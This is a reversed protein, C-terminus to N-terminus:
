GDREVEKEMQEYINEINAAARHADKNSDFMCIENFPCYKCPLTGGSCYPKIEINGAKIARDADVAAKKVYKKMIDFQELSAISRSQQFTGDSEPAVNLFESKGGASIAADMLYLADPSLGDELEDLIFLGDLKHTKKPAKTLDDSQEFKVESNESETLRSYLIARIQPDLTDIGTLIGSKAMDEAAAAYMVLQMDVKDYIAEPSFKKSGTKYDVIRINLRNKELEEMVDIRDIKGTLTIRDGNDEIETEFSKEYCLSAYEGDSLSKRVASVSNKLTVECRSLLYEAKGTDPKASAAIQESMESIVRHILLECEEDTLATWKSHIEAISQAGDEVAKCFEHIAAHMISGIHSANIEPESQGVLRLGRELYYSFPCKEYKELATISYKKNKGYLAEARARSLMPQILKYEAATRLIDLRQRYEPNKSYWDRVDNWLQEPKEKYYESLKLLMYYFGRRPSALLESVSPPSIINEGVTIDFMGTIESVFHAPNVPEGKRDASPFSIFLKETGTSLMRYFKFNELMIRGRNDPALEKKRTKLASSIMIRDLDSLITGGESVKPFQGDQAGIIFLAKVRSPSNRTVTGLSVRDLGSPIIAISCVGLGCLFRDAFDERSITGGQSVTVLQDLTEIIYNWVQRFQESENRNGCEDFAACESVLGDYLNIDCMFKFVAEAIAPATRGKNELFHEFPAIIFARLENLKDLDIDDYPKSGTVEDFVTGCKETWESFWTKKGKIGVALVYNELLDVDEQSIATVEDDTKAYIYGTRLYEFVSTYSWNDKIIDFLSLVTKAVPHMSVPMKEDTFFPIGFDSFVSTLIHLYQDMDGCIIGIDRFRLGNDRVLSIIVAAAHEVESYIDLANFVSINECKKEYHPKQDWNQLLFRIDASKIHECNGCLKVTECPINLRGCLSTLKNKTKIVPEFLDEDMTEDICLSVSVGRSAKLFASIVRYHSPMFDSYDDIYFFTNGFINSNEAIDAFLAMEDDSDSLDESFSEVYYKYIENVSALKKDTHPNETELGEFDDPSIGYRKLESFLDSLADTFGSRGSSLYFANDKSVAKAAKQILMAKGCPSIRTARPLFRNLLRSFTVAEIRNIGLGGLEESLSKESAFSFQEPVILIANCDPNSSLTDLISKHLYASKGSGIGGTIIKMQM